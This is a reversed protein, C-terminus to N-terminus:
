LSELEDVIAQLFEAAYKGNVIRHDVSLTLSVRNQPVVKGDIVVAVPAVKGIALIAAEPPNVIATFSEIGTSGLNTITLRAPQLRRATPDGSILKEISDRIETSLVEPSKDNPGPLSIVFLEGDIDVAVGISDTGSPNLRDNELRFSMRGFRSLAKAAAHVFFADWVIKSEAAARRRTILPEANASTQLYFHPISQKSEQMRRAVSRQTLSLQISTADASEAPQSAAARNKAFMGGRAKSGAEENVVPQVSPVALKGEGELTAVLQGVDVSDEPQVHVTKLTGSAIAELEMTAKDTEVELIGEGRRVMQGIVKLWRVVRMPSDTTALDPMRLEIDMHSFHDESREEARESSTRRL